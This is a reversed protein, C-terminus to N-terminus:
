DFCKPRPLSVKIIHKIWTVSKIHSNRQGNNWNLHGTSLIFICKGSSLWMYNQLLGRGMWAVNLIVRLNHACGKIMPNDVKLKFM